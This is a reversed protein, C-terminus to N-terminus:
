KNSGYSSSSIQKQKILQHFIAIVGILLLSDTVNGAASSLVFNIFGDVIVEEEHGFLGVSAIAVRYITLRFITIWIGFMLFALAYKRNELAIQSTAAGFFLIFFRIIINLMDM